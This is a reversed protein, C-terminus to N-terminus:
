IKLIQKEQMEAAVAKGATISINQWMWRRWRQRHPFM